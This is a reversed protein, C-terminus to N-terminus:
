CGREWPERRGVGWLTPLLSGRSRPQPILDQLGASMNLSIKLNFQFNQLPPPSWGFVGYVTSERYSSGRALEFWNENGRLDNEIYNWGWYSSGHKSGKFLRPFLRRRADSVNFKPNGISTNYSYLKSTSASTSRDCALTFCGKKEFCYFAHEM